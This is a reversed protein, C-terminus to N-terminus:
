GVVCLVMVQFGGTSTSSKLNNQYWVGSESFGGISTWPRPLQAPQSTKFTCSGHCIATLNAPFKNLAICIGPQREEAPSAILLMSVCGGVDAHQCGLVIHHGLLPPSLRDTVCWSKQAAEGWLRHWSLPATPETQVASCRLHKMFLHVQKTWLPIPSFHHLAEM